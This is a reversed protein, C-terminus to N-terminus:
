LNECTQRMDKTLRELEHSAAFQWVGPVVSHVLLYLQARALRASYSWARLMHEFYACRVSELHQKCANVICSM